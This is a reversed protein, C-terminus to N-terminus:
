AASSVSRAVGVGGSLVFIALVAIVAIAWLSSSGPLANQVAAVAASAQGSIGSTAALGAAGTSMSILNWNTILGDLADAFENFVDAGSDTGDGTYTFTVDYALGNMQQYSNVVISTALDVAPSNELTATVDLASPPIVLPALLGATQNVTMTYQQSNILGAGPDVVAM